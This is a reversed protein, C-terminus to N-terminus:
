YCIGGIKPKVQYFFERHKKAMTYPINDDEWKKLAMHKTSSLIQTIQTEDLKGYLAPILLVSLNM